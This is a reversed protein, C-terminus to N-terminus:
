VSGIWYNLKLHTRFPNLRNQLSSLVTVCDMGEVTMKNGGWVIRGVETGATCELMVVNQLLFFHKSLQCLDHTRLTKVPFNV